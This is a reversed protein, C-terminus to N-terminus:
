RGQCRAARLPPRLGKHLVLARYWGGAAAENGQETVRRKRGSPLPVHFEIWRACSRIRGARRSTLSLCMRKLILFFSLRVFNTCGQCGKWSISHVGFAGLARPGQISSSLAGRRGAESAAAQCAEPDDGCLPAQLGGGPMLLVPCAPDGTPLCM